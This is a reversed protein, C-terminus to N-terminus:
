CSATMVFACNAFGSVAAPVACMAQRARGRVNELHTRGGVGSRAGTQLLAQLIHEEFAGAPLLRLPREWLASRGGSSRVPGRSSM